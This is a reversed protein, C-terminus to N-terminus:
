KKNARKGGKKTPVRAGEEKKNPPRGPKRDAVLALDEELILHARGVKMAPLRGQLILQRVRSDDIGLREAAQKTSMLNM